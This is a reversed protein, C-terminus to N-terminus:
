ILTFWSGAQCPPSKKYIGVMNPLLGLPRFHRVHDLPAAWLNMDM